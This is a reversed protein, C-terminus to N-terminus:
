TAFKPLIFNDIEYTRLTLASTVLTELFKNSQGRPSAPNLFNSEICGM